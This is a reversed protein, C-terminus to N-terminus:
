QGERRIVVADLAIAGRGAPLVAFPNIDISDIQDKMDVAFESLAALADALAEIDAVPRGRAGHLLSKAKVEEIMRLAEAKSFPALRFSVDKMTEVFIGGLGFM